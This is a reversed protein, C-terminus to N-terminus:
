WPAAAPSSPEHSVTSRSYASCAVTGGARAQCSGAALGSPAQYTVVSMGPAGAPLVPPGRAPCVTATLSLMATAPTGIIFPEVVRAPKTGDASAVTTVLIRAAPAVILPLAAQSSRHKEPPECVLLTPGTRLGQSRSRDAPPEELPLAAS